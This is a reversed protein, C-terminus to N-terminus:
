PRLFALPALRLPLPIVLSYLGLETGPARNFLPLARDNVKFTPGAADAFREGAHMHGPSISARERSAEIGAFGPLM